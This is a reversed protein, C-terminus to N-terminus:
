EINEEDADSEDSEDDVEDERDREAAFKEAEIAPNFDETPFEAQFPANGKKQFSKSFPSLSTDPIFSGMSKQMGSYSERILRSSKKPAQIKGLIVIKIIGDTGYIIANNLNWLIKKLGNHLPLNEFSGSVMIDNWQEDMSFAYGTIKSIKKLVDGLPKNMVNLSILEDGSKFGGQSSSPALLCLTFIALIGFIDFPTKRFLIWRFNNM